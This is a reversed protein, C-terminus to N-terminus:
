RLEKELEEHVKGLNKKYTERSAQFIEETKLYEKPYAYPFGADELQGKLRGMGLRNALPAYVEISEIAIRRRKDERVYQLTRLNHLRDAFKIVVVRLDNTMAIFFKRLSEVHREYGYYKLTGLKTVGEVLFVIDKGFKQTLEEETTETDELVDHLLGAVITQIDMGLSALIKATEFVHSFYPEGSLRKQGQHAKQAFLYAKELLKGEDENLKGSLTLIENIGQEM